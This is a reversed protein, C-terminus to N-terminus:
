QPCNCPTGPYVRPLYGAPEHRGARAHGATARLGPDQGPIGPRLVLPIARPQLRRDVPLLEHVGAAVSDAVRRSGAAPQGPDASRRLAHNTGPRELNGQYTALSEKLGREAQTARYAASEVDAKAQTVEAAVRDQVEYLEVMALDMEGRRKRILSQNGFGLNDAKWVVQAAVDSRGAWQNLGGGGTGFIGGQFLFDPTGNGTILMSPILPRMTGAQLRALTAQVIAQHSGLEPRNTLGIPIM